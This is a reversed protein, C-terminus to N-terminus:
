SAPTYSAEGSSQLTATFTMADNYPGTEQFNQLYFTGSIVAGNPYTITATKTRAAAGGFYAARLIDDKTVGSLSIDVSDEASVDLLTRWGNDEDSTVNIAEGNLTIGKERVGKIIAGDWRFQVARGAFGDVM